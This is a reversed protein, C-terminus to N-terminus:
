QSLIKDYNEEIKKEVEKLDLKKIEAIKEYSVLVNGPINDRLKDPHLFPSDTECFLQEIPCMEIVKQFHESTKVIAPITLFWGNDIIRQVFKFSGHFCHMLIKDYDFSELFEVAEKEAARAHVVVPLGLGKALEVMKGFNKKQKELTEISNWKLDLGVEGIAVIKDKNENIFEIEKDIEEDSLKLSDSPFIGLCAEVEDYKESFGLASRNTKVDIGSTLIKGVGMKVSESIAKDLDKVM